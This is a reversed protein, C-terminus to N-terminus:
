DGYLPLTTSPNRLYLFPGGRTQWDNMQIMGRQGGSEVALTMSSEGSAMAAARIRDPSLLVIADASLETAVPLGEPSRRAGSRRMPKPLWVYSALARVIPNGGRCDTRRKGGGGRLVAAVVGRGTTLTGGFVRGDLPGGPLTLVALGFGRLVLIPLDLLLLKVFVTVFVTRLGRRSRGCGLSFSPTPM